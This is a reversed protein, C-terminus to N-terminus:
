MAYQSIVTSLTTNARKAECNYRCGNRGNGIKKHSAVTKRKNFKESIDM